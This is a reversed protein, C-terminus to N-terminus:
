RDVPNSAPKGGAGGRGKNDGRAQQVARFLEDLDRQDDLSLLQMEQALTAAGAPTAGIQRTVGKAANDKDVVNAEPVTIPNNPLARVNSIRFARLKRDTACRVIVRDKLTKNVIQEARRAAARYDGEYSKGDDAFQGQKGSTVVDASIREVVGVQGNLEPTAKLGYLM